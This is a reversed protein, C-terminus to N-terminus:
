RVRGQSRGLFKHRRKPALHVVLFRGIQSHHGIEVVVEPPQHRIEVVTPQLVVRNENEHIVITLCM